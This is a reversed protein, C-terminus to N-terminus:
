EFDILVDGANVTTGKSAHISVVKGDFPAFVENEMKMAELMMVPQGMKLTDGETVYVKTVLGPLPATISSGDSLTKPRHIPASGSSKKKVSTAAATSQPGRPAPSPKIRAIEALGLDKLGIKYRNDEVSIEATEAGFSHIIVKYDKGNIDLTLEKEKM